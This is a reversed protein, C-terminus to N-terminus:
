TSEDLCNAPRRVPAVIDKVGLRQASSAKAIDEIAISISPEGAVLFVAFSEGVAFTLLTAAFGFTGISAIARRSFHDAAVAFGNGVIAGPAAAVLM